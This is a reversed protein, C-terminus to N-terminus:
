IIIHLVQGSIPDIHRAYLIKDTYGIWIETKDNLIYVYIHIGSGIDKEPEGFTEVIQSYNMSIILNDQFYKLDNKTIDLTKCALVSLISLLIVTYLLGIMRIKLENIVM